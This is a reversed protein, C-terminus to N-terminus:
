NSIESLKVANDILNYLVKLEDPYDKTGGYPWTWNLETEQISTKLTIHALFSGETRIKFGSRKVRKAENFLASVTEKKLRKNETVFLNNKYFVQGNELFTWSVKVGSNTNFTGFELYTDPLNTAQYVKKSQCGVIVIFSLLLSTQVLNKISM